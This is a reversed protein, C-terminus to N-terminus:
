EFLPSCYVLGQTPKWILCVEGSCNTIVDGKDITGTPLTANGREEYIEINDWILDSDSWDGSYYNVVILTNNQKICNIIPMERYPKNDSGMIQYSILLGGIIAAIFIIVIVLIIKENRKKILFIWFLIANIITIVIFIPCFVFLPAMAWQVDNWPAGSLYIYLLIESLILLIILVFFSYFIKRINKEKICGGYCYDM